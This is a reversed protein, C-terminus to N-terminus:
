SPNKHYWLNYSRCRFLLWHTDKKCKDKLHSVAAMSVPTDGMSTTTLLRAVGQMVSPCDGGAGDPPAVLTLKPTAREGTQLLKSDSDM